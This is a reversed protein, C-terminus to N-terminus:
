MQQVGCFITCTSFHSLIGEGESHHKEEDSDRMAIQLAALLWVSVANNNVEGPYPTDCLWCLFNL